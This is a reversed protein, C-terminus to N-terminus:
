GGGGDDCGWFSYFWGCGWLCFVVCIWGGGCVGRCCSCRKWFWCWFWGWGRGKWCRWNLVFYFFSLGIVGRWFVLCIWFRWGRVRGVGGSGCRWLCCLGCWRVWCIGCWGCWGWGGGGRWWLLWGGWGGFGLWLCGVFCIGGNWSFCIGGSRLMWRCCSCGWVYLWVWFIFFLLVLRFVGCCLFFM